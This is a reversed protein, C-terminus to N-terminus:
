AARTMLLQTPTPATKTLAAALLAELTDADRQLQAPTPNYRGSRTKTLLDTM